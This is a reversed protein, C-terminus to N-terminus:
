PLQSLQSLVIKAYLIGLVCFAILRFFAPLKYVSQIKKNFALFIIGEMTMVTLSFFVLTHRGLNEPDRIWLWASALLMLISAWVMYYRLWATRDHIVEYSVASPLYVISAVEDPNFPEAAGDVRWENDSPDFKMKVHETDSVKQYTSGSSEVKYVCKSYKYIPLKGIPMPTSATNHTSTEVNM